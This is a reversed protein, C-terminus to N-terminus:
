LGKWHFHVSPNLFLAHTPTLLPWLNINFCMNEKESPQSSLCLNACIPTDGGWANEKRELEATINEWAGAVLCAGGAERWNHQPEGHVMVTVVKIEPRGRGRGSGTPCEPAPVPNWLSTSVVKYVDVPSFAVVCNISEM